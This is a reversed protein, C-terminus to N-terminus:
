RNRFVILKSGVFNVGVSGVVAIGKGIFFPLALREQTWTLVLSSVALALLNVVLFCVIQRTTMREKQKFTWRKNMLLSNGMGCLFGICNAAVYHKGFFPILVLLNTVAYDILTNVVGVLGFKVAQMFLTKIKEM